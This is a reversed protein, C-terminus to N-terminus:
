LITLSYQSDSFLAVGGLFQANMERCRVLNLLKQTKKVIIWEETLLSGAIIFGTM